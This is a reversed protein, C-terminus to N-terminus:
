YRDFLKKNMLRSFSLCELLSDSEWAPIFRNLDWPKSEARELRVGRAIQMSQIGGSFGTL